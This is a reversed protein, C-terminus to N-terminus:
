QGAEKQLRNMLLNLELIMKPPIDGRLNGLNSYSFAYEREDAAVEVTMDRFHEPPTYDTYMGQDVVLHGKPLFTEIEDQIQFLKTFTLNM